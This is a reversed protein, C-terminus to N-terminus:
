SQLQHTVKKKLLELANTVGDPARGGAQAIEPNGGGGGQILLAADKIGDAMNVGAKVAMKGASGVIVM